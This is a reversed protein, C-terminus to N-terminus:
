AWERNETHIENIRHCLPFQPQDCNVVSRLRCNLLADGTNWRWPSQSKGGARYYNRGTFIKSRTSHINESHSGDSSRTLILVRAPRASPSRTESTSADSCPPPPLPTSSPPLPIASVRHLHGWADLSVAVATGHRCPSYADSGPSQSPHDFHPSFSVFCANCVHFGCIFTFLFSWLICHCASFADSVRGWTSRRSKHASLMRSCGGPAAGRVHRLESLSARLVMWRVERYRELPYSHLLAWVATTHVCCVRTTPPPFSGFLCLVLCRVLCCSCLLRDPCLGHRCLVKWTYYVQYKSVSTCRISDLEDSQNHVASIMESITVRARGDFGFMDKMVLDSTGKISTDLLHCLVMHLVGFNQSDIGSWAPVKAQSSCAPLSQSRSPISHM